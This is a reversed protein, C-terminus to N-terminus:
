IEVALTLKGGVLNDWQIAPTESSVEYVTQGRGKGTTAPVTTETRTILKKGILFQILGYAEERSVNNKAALQLVTFQKTNM